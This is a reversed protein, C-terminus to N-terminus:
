VIVLKCIVNLFSRQRPYGYTQNAAWKSKTLSAISFVSLWVPWYGVLNNTTGSEFVSRQIFHIFRIVSYKSVDSVPRNTRLTFDGYIYTLVDNYAPFQQDVWAFDKIESGDSRIWSFREYDFDVKVNFPCYGLEALSNGSPQCNKHFRWTPVTLILCGESNLYFEVEGIKVWTPKSTVFNQLNLRTWQTLTTMTLSGHGTKHAFWFNAFFCFNALDFWFSRIEKGIEPAFRTM